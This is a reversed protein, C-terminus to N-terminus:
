SGVVEGDAETQTVFEAPMRVSKTVRVPRM